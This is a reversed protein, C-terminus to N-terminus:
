FTSRWDVCLVSVVRERWVNKKKQAQASRDKMETAEAEGPVIKM